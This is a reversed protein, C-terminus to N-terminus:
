YQTFFNRVFGLSKKSLFTFIPAKKRLGETCRSYGMYYAGCNTLCLSNNPKLCRRYCPSKLNRGYFSPVNRASLSSNRNASPPMCFHSTHRRFCVSRMEGSTPNKKFPEQFDFIDFRNTRLGAQQEAWV